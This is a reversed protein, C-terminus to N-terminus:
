TFVIKTKELELRTSIINTFSTNKTTILICIVKGAHISLAKSFFCFSCYFLEIKTDQFVTKYLLISVRISNCVTM